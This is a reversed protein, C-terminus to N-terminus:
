KGQHGHWPPPGPVWPPKGPPKWPSPKKTPHSMIEMVGYVGQAVDWEPAVADPGVDLNFEAVENAKILISQELRAAGVATIVEVRYRGEAVGGIEFRGREDTAASLYEKGSATDLMRVVVNEVPTRWGEETLVGKVTGTAPKVAGAGLAALVMLSVASIAALRLGTRKKRLVTEGQM